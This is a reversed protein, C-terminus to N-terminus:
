QQRWEDQEISITDRLNELNEKLLSLLMKIDNVSGGRSFTIELSRITNEMKELKSLAQQKYKM